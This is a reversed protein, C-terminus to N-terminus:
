KACTSIFVKMTIRSANTPILISVQNYAQLLRYIEKNFSLVLYQATNTNKIKTQINSSYSILSASIAIFFLKLIIM